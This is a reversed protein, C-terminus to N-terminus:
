LGPLRAARAAKDAAQDLDASSGAAQSGTAPVGDRFGQQWLEGLGLRRGGSRALALPESERALRLAVDGDPSTLMLREVTTEDLRHKADEFRQLAMGIRHQWENYLDLSIM